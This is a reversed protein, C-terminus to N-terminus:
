ALGRDLTPAGLFKLNQSEKADKRRKSPCAKQKLCFDKERL